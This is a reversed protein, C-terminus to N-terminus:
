KGFEKRLKQRYDNRSAVIKGRKDVLVMTPVGKIGFAEGQPQQGAKATLSESLIIWPLKEQEVFQRVTAVADSEEVEWIYVSVIEFGKDHYKQYAELMGPIEGKCPGCWTATFKVLVYKERLSEWDFDEDDITKGYLFFDPMDDTDSEELYACGTALVVVLASVLFSFNYHPYKMIAVRPLLFYRERNYCFFILQSRKKGM